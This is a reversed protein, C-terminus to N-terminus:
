RDPLADPDAIVADALQEAAVRSAEDVATWGLLPRGRWRQLRTGVSPLEALDYAIFDPRSKWNMLMNRLLFVEYFALDEGEFASSLQGRPIEPAAEAVRALSFPNFSMVAADGDYAAVQEAVDDELGGVEGPNKIEVFVPVRGGITALAEELTPITAEGGLLRRQKLEALTVEGVTGPEGTMAELEEDHIVVTRGDSTRQVDLEIAFGNDAAEDFAPLSNEPRAPGSTWQGRHAVPQATLWAPPKRSPTGGTAFVFAAVLAAASVGLAIMVKRM